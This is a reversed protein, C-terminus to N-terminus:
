VYKRDITIVANYGPYREQIKKNLMNKFAEEEEPKIDFSVVVDFIINKNDGKGVVRLDHFSDIEPIESIVNAIEKRTRNIEEDDLNLPDMHITVEIGMEEALDREITDILEHAEMIPMKESIEAHLSVVFQGPGYSHIMLDHIGLIGEYSIVKEKIKKALYPDGRGGILLDVSERILSYGSYMIFLSVLLGIYGDVSIAMFRSIILSFIVTLTSVVDSFSDLFNAQLVESDIKEGLKKNFWGLWLKIIITIFLTVITIWSFELRSPKLIRNFSDKLFQFGIIMIVISIILSTIYEIRGHGFPHEKDPPLSSLKFGMLTLVSSGIDGFNNFADALIAVSNTMIGIVFKIAFLIINVGIGVIGALMGYVFRMDDTEEKNQQLKKLIKKLM